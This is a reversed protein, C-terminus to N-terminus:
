PMAAPQAADERVGDWGSSIRRARTREARLPFFLRAGAELGDLM